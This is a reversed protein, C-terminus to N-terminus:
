ELLGSKPFMGLYPFYANIKACPSNIILSLNKKIKNEFLTQM